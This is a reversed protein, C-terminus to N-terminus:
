KYGLAKLQDEILRNEAVPSDSIDWFDPLSEVLAERKEEPIPKFNEGDHEVVGTLTVDDKKSCIIKNMEMYAAKREAGYRSAECIAIRDNPIEDQWECKTFPNDGIIENALTPALDVHSGVGGIPCIRDDSVAVPVRAVKDFPTGGHGVGYNPRSDTFKRDVEPHEYLAEGHDGTVTILTDSMIEDCLSQICDTVYDFAASSLRLRHKRFHVAESDDPDYNDMYGGFGDLDYIDTNVNFKEIYEDPPNVPIHLDSLHVYGFTLERGTRWKRYDELVTSAKSDQFVRHTQYWTETALFPQVFAFGGYTDYGAAEAIEPITHEPQAQEPTAFTEDESNTHVVAGHEHPYEGSHISTVAPYTWTGPTIVESTSFGDIDPVQDPRLADVIIILVHDPADSRRNVNVRPPRHQINARLERFKNYFPSAVKMLGEVTM